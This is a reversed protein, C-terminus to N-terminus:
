NINYLSKILMSIITDPDKSYCIYCSLVKHILKNLSPFSLLQAIVPLLKHFKPELEIGLTQKYFVPIIELLKSLAEEPNNSIDEIKIEDLCENM